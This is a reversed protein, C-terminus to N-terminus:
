QQPENSWNSKTKSFFVYIEWQMWNNAIKNTLNIIPLNAFVQLMCNHVFPYWETKNLKLEKLKINTKCFLKECEVRYYLLNQFVFKARPPPPAFNAAGRVGFALGAVVGMVLGTPEPEMDPLVSGDTGALVM